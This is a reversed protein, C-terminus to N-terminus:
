AEQGDAEAAARAAEREEIRERAQTMLEEPSVGVDQAEAIGNMANMAEATFQINIGAKAGAKAEQERREKEQKELREQAKLNLMLM